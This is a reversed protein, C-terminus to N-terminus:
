HDGLMGELIGVDIMFQKVDYLLYYGNDHQVAAMAKNIRNYHQNEETSMKFKVPRLENWRKRVDEVVAEAFEALMTETSKSM